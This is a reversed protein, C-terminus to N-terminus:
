VIIKPTVDTEIGTTATIYANNIDEFEDLPVNWLVNIPHIPVARPSVGLIDYMYPIARGGSVTYPRIILIEPQGLDNVVPEIEGFILEGTILKFFRRITKESNNPM